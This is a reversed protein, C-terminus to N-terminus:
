NWHEIYDPFSSFSSQRKGCRKCKRKTEFIDYYIWSHVGFKCLISIILCPNLPPKPEDRMTMLKSM